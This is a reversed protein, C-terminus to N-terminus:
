IKIMTKEKKIIFIMLNHITIQARTRCVIFRRDIKIILKSFCM